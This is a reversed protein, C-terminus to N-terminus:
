GGHSFIIRPQAGDGKKIQHPPHHAIGRAEVMGRVAAGLEPGAVFMPRPEAAFFKIETKERLGRKNLYDDVLLATEYPAAPCKYQPAATLIVIRGGSFRALADRIATAGEM